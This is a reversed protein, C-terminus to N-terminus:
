LFSRLGLGIASAVLTLVVFRDFGDSSFASRLRNGLPVTALAPICALMSVTWLGTMRGSYLLAPIQALGAAAFLLTVSLVYANRVLRYSHIWSAVIPGSIGVAGQMVGAWLGVFPAWRRATAPAIALDPDIVFLVAYVVVVLVLLAILPEEPLSILLLTGAAGGVIGTVAMVPLDRTEPWSSRERAALVLNLVLNPVATVAVATELDAVWTVVPMTVLPLGVGSISKLLSGALVALLVVVAVDLTM